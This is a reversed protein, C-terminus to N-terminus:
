AAVEARIPRGTHWTSLYEPIQRLVGGSWFFALLVVVGYMLASALSYCQVAGLAGGLSAGLAFSAVSVVLFAANWVLGLEQKEYVFFAQTLPLTAFLMLQAPVLAQAYRGAESWAPGFVLGFLGPAVALLAGMPLLALVVLFTFLRTTLAAGSQGHARMAALRQSFVIGTTEGVLAAPMILLRNSLWYFGVDTPTFVAALLLTPLELALVNSLAGPVAFLPFKRYRLALLRLERAGGGAGLGAAILQKAAGLLVLTELAMGLLYGGVLGAAGPAILWGVGIQAGTSVGVRAVRGLAISGYRRSRSLSLRLAQYLGALSLLAPIVWLWDRVAPRGFTVALWPGTSVVVVVSVLVMVGTTLLALRLIPAAAKDEAPLIIAQEYRWCALPGLVSSVSLVLGLMGLHEPQYLRTLIPSAAVILVQATATGAMLVGTDRAFGSGLLAQLAM